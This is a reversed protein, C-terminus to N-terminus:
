ESLKTMNSGAAAGISWSATTSGYFFSAKGASIRM